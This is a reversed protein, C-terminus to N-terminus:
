ADGDKKTTKVQEFRRTQAILTKGLKADVEFTDGPEVTFPQGGAPAVQRPRSGKYRVKM